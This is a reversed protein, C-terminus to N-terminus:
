VVQMVGNMIKGSEPLLELTKSKKLKNSVKEISEKSYEVAEKGYQFSFKM